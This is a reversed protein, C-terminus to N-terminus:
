HVEIFYPLRAQIGSLDELGQLEEVLGRYEGLSNKLLRMRVEGGLARMIRTYPDEPVPLERLSYTEIGALKAAEDLAANLGGISDVLGIGLASVAGWV